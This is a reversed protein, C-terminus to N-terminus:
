LNRMFIQCILLSIIYFTNLQFVEEEDMTEIIEENLEQILKQDDSSMKGKLLEKVTDIIVSPEISSKQQIQKSMQIEPSEQQMLTNPIHPTVVNNQQPPFSRSQVSPIINHQM